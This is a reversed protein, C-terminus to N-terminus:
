LSTLFLSTIIYFNNLNLDVGCFLITFISPITYGTWCIQSDSLICFQVYLELFFMNFLCFGLFPFFFVASLKLHTHLFSYSFKSSFQWLTWMLTPVVMHQCRHITQDPCLVWLDSRPIPFVKGSFHFFHGVSSCLANCHEWLPFKSSSLKLCSSEKWYEEPTIKRSWRWSARVMVDATCFCATSENKKILSKWSSGSYSRANCSYKRSDSM